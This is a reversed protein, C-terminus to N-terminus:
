GHSGGGGWVGGSGARRLLVWRSFAWVTRLRPLGPPGRSSLCAKDPDTGKQPGKPYMAQGGCGCPSICTHVSEDPAWGPARQFRPRKDLNDPRLSSGDNVNTAGAGVLETLESGLVPSNGGMNRHKESQTSGDTVWTAQLCPFTVCPLWRMEADELCLTHQTLQPETLAKALLFLPDRHQRVQHKEYLTCTPVM